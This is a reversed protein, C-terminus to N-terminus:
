EVGQLNDIDLGLEDLVDMDFQKEPLTSKDIVVLEDQSYEGDGDLETTTKACGEGQRKFIAEPIEMVYKKIAKDVAKGINDAFSENTVEGSVNQCITHIILQKAALIEIETANFDSAAVNVIKDALEEKNKHEKRVNYDDLGVADIVRQIKCESVPKSKAITPEQIKVSTTPAVDLNQSIVRNCEDYNVYLYDSQGAGSSVTILKKDILKLKARIVTRSNLGTGEAIFSIALAQNYDDHSSIFGLVMTEATSLSLYAFAKDIQYYGTLKDYRTQRFQDRDIKSLNKSM